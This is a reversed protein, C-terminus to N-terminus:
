GGGSKMWPWAEKLFRQLAVFEEPGLAVKHTVGDRDCYLWVMAPHGGPDTEVYAGDGLYAKTM